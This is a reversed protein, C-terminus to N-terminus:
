KSFIGIGFYCPEEKCAAMEVEISFKGSSAPQLTLVPTDDDKKDQDVVTGNEDKITMDVNKCDNDCAGTIIYTAGKEFYFTWTDTGGQNIRGMIYNQLYWDQSNKSITKWHEQLQDWVQVAYSQAHLTGPRAALLLLGLTLSLRKSM